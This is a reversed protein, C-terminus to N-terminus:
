RKAAKVLASETAKMIAKSTTTAGTVADVNPSQREVMRTLVPAAKKAYDYDTETLLDVKVLRHNQVTAEVTFSHYGYGFRGQHKGDPVTALDVRQITMERVRDYGSRPAACSGLVAAAALLILTKKM